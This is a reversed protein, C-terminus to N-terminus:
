VEMCCNEMVNTNRLSHYATCYQNASSYCLANKMNHFLATNEGNSWHFHRSSVTPSLRYEHNVSFSWLWSWVDTHPVFEYYLSDRYYWGFGNFNPTVSLLVSCKRWLSGIIRSIRTIGKVISTEESKRWYYVCNYNCGINILSCLREIPKGQQGSTQLGSRWWSSHAFHKKVTCTWMNELIELNSNRNTGRSLAQQWLPATGWCYKQISEGSKWLESSLV